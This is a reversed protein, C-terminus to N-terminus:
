KGVNCQHSRNVIAQQNARSQRDIEINYFSIKIRSKWMAIEMNTASMRYNRSEANLGGDRM